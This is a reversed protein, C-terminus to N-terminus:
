VPSSASSHPPGHTSSRVTGHDGGFRRAHRQV